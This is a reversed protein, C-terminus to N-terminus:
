DELELPVENKGETLTATLPSTNANAYKAPLLHKPKSQNQRVSAGGDYDPHDEPVSEADNSEIKTVAVQYNGPEVGPEPGASLTFAGAEDTRGAASTTGAVSTFIVTADAVPENNHTVTGSVAAMDSPVSEGGCGLLVGFGALSLLTAITRMTENGISNKNPIASVHARWAGALPQIFRYNLDV